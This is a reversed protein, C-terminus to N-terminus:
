LTLGQRVLADSFNSFSPSYCPSSPPYAPNPLLSFFQYQFLIAVVSLDLGFTVKQNWM